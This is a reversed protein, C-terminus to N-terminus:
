SLYGHEGLYRSIEYDSYGFLKGAAWVEFADPTPKKSREILGYIIKEVFDYKYIFVISCEQGENFILAKCKEQRISEEALRLYENLITIQSCLKAGANIQECYVSIQGLIMYEITKNTIETNSGCKHAFM